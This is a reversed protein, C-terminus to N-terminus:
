QKLPLNKEKWGTMGDMVAIIEGQYDLEKLKEIITTTRKNTTCILMIKERSLYPILNEELTEEYANILIANEIHGSAFMTSDRGDILVGTQHDFNQLVEFAKGSDIEQVSQAHIQSFTLIIFCLVFLKKM